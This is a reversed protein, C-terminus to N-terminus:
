QARQYHIIFDEELPSFDIVLKTATLEVVYCLFYESADEPNSLKLVGDSYTYNAEVDDDEFGEINFVCTNNENFKIFVFELGETYIDGDEVIKVANWKGVLEQSPAPPNNPKCANLLVVAVALFLFNLKRM